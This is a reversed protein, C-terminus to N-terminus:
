KRSALNSSSHVLVGHEIDALSYRLGGIVYAMREFTGHIEQVSEEVEYAVLGHIVLVNYINIWFAKREDRTALVSPDFKCLAPVLRSFENFVESKALRLYNVKGTELDLGDAKWRNMM